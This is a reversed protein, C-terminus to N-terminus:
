LEVVAKIVKSQPDTWKDFAQVFEAFPARHTIFADVDVKGQEMFKMVTEFDERTANRSSLLTTERKHFEPDSLSFDAQVLGVYVLRGSHALFQLAQSMSQANGTADFVVTPFEGSTLEEVTKLADEGARVAHATGSWQHGFQLRKENVDLAIVRGGALTAFKSVGLGIPGMGIVLVFEGPVIQARRVAHAAISLPEVVALQDLSLASSPLLHTVPVTLYERMGGDMHVGLVKLNTCCNPRNNRCAVCQGCQLYPLIAVRDGKTLGVANSEVMDIEGALEHGLVRPYTFYPQRGRYAHYDTGCVGVRRIRVLAEGPLPRPMEERRLMFQNPENCVISDM